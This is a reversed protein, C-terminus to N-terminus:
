HGYNCGILYIKGNIDFEKNFSGCCGRSAAEEYRKVSESDSKLAVRVNDVCELDEIEHDIISQISAVDEPFIFVLQYEDLNTYATPIESKVEMIKEISYSLLTGNEYKLCGGCSEYEENISKLHRDKETVSCGNMSHIFIEKIKEFNGTVNGLEIFKPYTSLTLKFLM